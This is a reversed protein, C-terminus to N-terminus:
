GAPCSDPQGQTRRADTLRQQQTIYWVSHTCCRTCAPTLWPVCCQHGLTSTASRREAVHTRGGSKCTVPKVANFLAPGKCPSCRLTLDYLPPTNL